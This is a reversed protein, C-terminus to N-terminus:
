YRLKEKLSEVKSSMSLTKDRRDDIKIITEVRALGDTFPAEHMKRAVALIKDVDGEVVTGMSNIEYKLDKEQQLVKVASAVYKSVSPTGTGLPIVNIEAVAM